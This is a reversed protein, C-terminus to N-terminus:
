EYYLNISMERIETAGPQVPESITIVPAGVGVAYHGDGQHRVQGPAFPLPSAQHTFRPRERGITNDWVEIKGGTDYRVTISAKHPYGIWHNRSRMVGLDRSEIVDGSVFRIFSGTAPAVETRQLEYKVRVTIPTHGAVDTTVAWSRRGSADIATRSDSLTTKRMGGDIPSFWEACGAYFLM